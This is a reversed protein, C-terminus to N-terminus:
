NTSSGSSTQSTCATVEVDTHCHEFRLEQPCSRWARMAQVFYFIAFHISEFTDEGRAEHVQKIQGRVLKFSRTDTRGRIFFRREQAM